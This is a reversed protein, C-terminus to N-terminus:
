IFMQQMFGKKQQQLLELKRKQVCIVEDLKNFFATIKKQEELGKPFVVNGVIANDDSVKMDNKAGKNVLPKLYKNLRFDNAFYYEIFNADTNAKVKYIAYLTSVIGVKGKNVKIIGYPNSKLPSKTYVIDGKEVVGYPAVSVGAFSRGQFEIQNVIGYDGSVSLVDTKSYIENINKEKSTKLYRNLKNVEWDGTFGDFRMEPQTEGAKPFMKQLFGKKQEQLLDIKQQQLQIKKNLLGFFEGLKQQELFEPISISFKEIDKKTINPDKRSSAALSKWYNKHANLYTQIFYPHIRMNENPILASIAQNTTAEVTTLGTRGIQNFGGYMAILVTNPPVIKLSTKSLALESVHEETEYILSDNLDLTKIWSIYKPSFYDLNSRLPTLGTQVNFVEKIKYKKVEGDFEKFRLKPVNM